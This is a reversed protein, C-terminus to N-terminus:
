EQKQQDFVKFNIRLSKNVIKGKPGKLHQGYNPIQPWAWLAEPKTGGTHKITISLLKGPSVLLSHNMTIYFYSNDKSQSLQAVGSVCSQNSCARLKLQGNATNGYNGQYVGVSRLWGAKNLSYAAPLIEISASQNPMLTLPKNGGSGVVTDIQQYTSFFGLSPFAKFFNVHIDSDYETGAGNSTIKVGIINQLGSIDHSFLGNLESQNAVYYRVFLGDSATSYIFRFPGQVSGNALRMYIHVQNSRFFINALHGLLTTQLMIDAYETNKPVTVWKGFTVSKEGTPKLNYKKVSDDNKELLSYSSGAQNLIYNYLIARFTAPEDFLPYRGDISEYTYLINQASRNDWIQTANMHDLYPTYASYAQIIPSPVFHWHYAQSMMLNWPIINVTSKGIAKVISKGLPFQAALAKNEMHQQANRASRSTYLDYFQKYNEIQNAGFPHTGPLSFLLAILFAVGLFNFRQREGRVFAINLMVPIVALSTGYFDMAEGSSFGLSQRTFGQKWALFLMVGLIIYQATVVKNNRLMYIMGSIATILVLFMGAATLAGKGHISMAPTYGSAIQITSYVFDPINEISQGSLFFLIVFTLAFVIFPTIGVLLTRRARWVYWQLLPYIALVFASVFLGTSKILSAFGFLIGSSILSILLGKGREQSLSYVLLLIAIIDTQTTIDVLSAGIIWALGGIWLLIFGIGTPKATNYLLYIYLFGFAIHTALITTASIRWLTHDSYFYPNTIFGLPGYTFLFNKGWQLHHQKAYGLAWGWSTDLKDGTPAFSWKLWPMTFVIILLYSTLM